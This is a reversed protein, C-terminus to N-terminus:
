AQIGAPLRDNLANDITSGVVLRINCRGNIHAPPKLRFANGIFTQPLAAGELVNISKNQMEDIRFATGNLAKCLDCTRSDMAADWEGHGATIESDADRNLEQARTLTSTSHANITESRAIMTARHKGISDVRGTINRAIERPGVGDRFGDLLEDRVTQAMDDRVSVLNEYTRTYLEQLASRHIPRSLLSEADTVFSVDLGDLQRHANRLGTLYAARIFQNRDPGVVELFESDLQERLWQLFGRIKSSDTPFDFVEDPVDDVLAESRLGFLDNDDIAERIRANIRRLVGRLRQAFQQATTFTNTPERPSKEFTYPSLAEYTCTM